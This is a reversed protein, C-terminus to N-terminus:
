LRRDDITMYSSAGDSVIRIEVPSIPVYTRGNDHSVVPQSHRLTASFRSTGLDLIYENNTDGVCTLKELQSETYINESHYIYLDQWLNYAFVMGKYKGDSKPLPVLLIDNNDKNVKYVKM